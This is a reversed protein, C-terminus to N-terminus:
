FNWCWNRNGVSQGTSIIKAKKSIKYREIVNPNSMSQVTEPRAQIIYLEKTKGDLAWEIDMARGYHSEIMIGWKALQLVQKDSISPKLRDAETVPVDKVPNKRKIM